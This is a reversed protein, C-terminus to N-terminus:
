LTPILGPFYVGGPTWCCRKTHEGSRLDVEFVRFCLLFSTSAGAAPHPFILQRGAGSGLRARADFRQDASLGLRGIGRTSIGM